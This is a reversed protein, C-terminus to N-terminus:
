VFATELDLPDVPQNIYTNTSSKHKDPSICPAFVISTQVIACLEHLEM